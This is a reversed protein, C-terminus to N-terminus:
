SQVTMLLTSSVAPGDGNDAKKRKKKSRKKDKKGKPTHAAGPGGGHGFIGAFPDEEPGVGRIDEPVWVAQGDADDIWAGGPIPKDRKTEQDPSGLGSCWEAARM